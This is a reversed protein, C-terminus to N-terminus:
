TLLMYNARERQSELISEYVDGREIHPLRQDAEAVGRFVLDFLIPQPNQSSRNLVIWFRLMCHTNVSSNEARM